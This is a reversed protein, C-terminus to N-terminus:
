PRAVDAAGRPLIDADKGDIKYGVCLKVEDLGDLVDLKTMCLGSVGNIQISRRLAAADLWGTRRPRGTVSGFEKGVNALTVGVKESLETLSMRRDLLLRDLTVRIAM